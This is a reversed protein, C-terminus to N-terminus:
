HRVNLGLLAYLEQRAGEDLNVGYQQALGNLVEPDSVIETLNHNSHAGTIMIWAAIRAIPDAINNNIFTEADEPAIKPALSTLLERAEYLNDSTIHKTVNQLKQIVAPFALLEQLSQEKQQLEKKQADDYAYEEQKKLDDIRGQIKNIYDSLKVPGMKYLDQWSSGVIGAQQSAQRYASKLDLSAWKYQMERNFMDLADKEKQASLNILQEKYWENALEKQKNLNLNQTRLWENFLQKRNDLDANQYKLELGKVKLWNEFDQQKQKMEAERQAQEQQINYLQEREPATAKLANLQSQIGAQIMKIQDIKDQNKELLKMEELAKNTLALNTAEDKAIAYNATLAAVQAAINDLEATKKALAQAKLSLGKEEVSNLAKTLLGSFYLGRANMDEKSRQRAAKIAKDIEEIEGKHAALVQAKQGKLAAMQTNYKQELSDLAAKLKADWLENIKATLPSPQKLSNIINQYTDLQSQLTKEQVAEQLKFPSEQTLNPLNNEGVNIAGVQSAPEYYPSNRNISITGSKQAEAIPEASQVKTLDETGPGAGSENTPQTAWAPSLIQGIPAPKKQSNQLFFNKLANSLVSPDAYSRSNKITFLGSALSLFPKGNILITKSNNDWGVNDIGNKVLWTRVPVLSM